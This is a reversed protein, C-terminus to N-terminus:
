PRDTGAKVLMVGISHAVILSGSLALVREAETVADQLIEGHIQGWGPIEVPPMYISHNPLMFVENFCFLGRILAVYRINM